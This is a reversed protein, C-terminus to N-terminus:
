INNKYREGTELIMKAREAIPADIMKGNVQVAGSGNLIADNYADIIREAEAIQKASPSFVENVIPIQGPHIVLKGQFGLKKGEKATKKLGEDNHIDTYVSDIPPDLGVAKSDIVLKSRAYLLQIQEEDPSINTNLIFDESGFALCSVRQSASGITYANHLGSATEIIPIISVSGSKLNNRKEMQGLFYDAIVIKERDDTMPLVIGDLNAHVIEQIDELFYDTDVANVRVFTTIHETNEIFRKVRQRASKKNEEAVADELDFIFADASLARVKELRRDKDGPIFMCTRLM